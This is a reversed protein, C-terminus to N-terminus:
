LLQTPALGFEPARIDTNVSMPLLDVPKRFPLKLDCNLPHDGYKAERIKAIIDDEDQERMKQARKTNSELKANLVVNEKFEKWLKDEAYLLM